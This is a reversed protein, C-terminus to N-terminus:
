TLRYKASAMGLVAGEMEASQGGFTKEWVGDKFRFATYDYCGGVDRAQWIEYLPGSMRANLAECYDMLELIRRKLTSLRAKREISIIKGNRAIIAYHDYVVREYIKIKNM